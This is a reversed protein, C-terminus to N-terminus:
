ANGDNDDTTENFVSTKQEQAESFVQWIPAAAAGIWAISLLIHKHVVFLSLIGFAAVPALFVLVLWRLRYPSAILLAGAAAMSFSTLTLFLPDTTIRFFGMFLGLAFLSYGWTRTTM